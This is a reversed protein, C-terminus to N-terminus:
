AGTKRRKGANATVTAVSVHEAEETNGRTRKSRSAPTTKTGVVLVKTDTTVASRTTVATTAEAEVKASVEEAISDARMRKSQEKREVTEVEVSPNRKRSHQNHNTQKTRDNSLKVKREQQHNTPKLFPLSVNNTTTEFPAVSNAATIQDEDIQYISPEELPMKRVVETLRRLGTLMDSMSGTAADDEKAYKHKLVSAVAMALIAQQSGLGYNQMFAFVQGFHLLRVFVHSTALPRFTHFLFMFM